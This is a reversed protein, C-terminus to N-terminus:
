PLFQSISNGLAVLPVLLHGVVVLQARPAASVLRNGLQLMHVLQATRAVPNALFRRSNERMVSLVLIQPELPALMLELLVSLAPPPSLCPTIDLLATSALVKIRNRRKEPVVLLALHPLPPPTSELVARSVLALALLMTTNVQNAIQVHQLATLHM